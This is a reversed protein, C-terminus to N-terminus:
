LKRLVVTVINNCHNYIPTMFSFRQQSISRILLREFLNIAAGTPYSLTKIEVAGAAQPLVKQQLGVTIVDYYISINVKRNFPRILMKDSDSDIVIVIVCLTVFDCV